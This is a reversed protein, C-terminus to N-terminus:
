IVHMYIACVFLIDKENKQNQNIIFELDTICFYSIKNLIPM